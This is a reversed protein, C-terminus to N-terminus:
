FNDETNHCNPCIFQNVGIEIKESECLECIEVDHITFIQSLKRAKYIYKM